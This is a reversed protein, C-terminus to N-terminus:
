GTVDVLGRRRRPAPPPPASPPHGRRRGYVHRGSMGLGASLMSPPSGGFVGVQWRIFMFLLSPSATGLVEVSVPLIM